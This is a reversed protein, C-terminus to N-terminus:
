FFPGNLVLVYHIQPSVGFHFSFLFSVEFLFPIFDIRVFSPLPLRDICPLFSILQVHISHFNTSCPLICVLLMSNTFTEENQLFPLTIITPKCLYSLSNLSPNLKTFQTAFKNGRKQYLNKITERVLFFQAYM